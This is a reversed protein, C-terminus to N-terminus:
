SRRGVRRGSPEAAVRRVGVRWFTWGGAAGALTLDQWLSANALWLARESWRGGFTLAAAIPGMAMGCAVFYLPARIRMLRSAVFFALFPLVTTVLSAVFVFLAVIPFGAISGGAEITGSLAARIAGILWFVANGALLAAFYGRIATAPM